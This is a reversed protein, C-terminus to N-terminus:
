PRLIIRSTSEGYEAKLDWVKKPDPVAWKKFHTRLSKPSEGRVRSGM